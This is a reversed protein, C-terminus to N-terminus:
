RNEQVRLANLALKADTYEAQLEQHDDELQRHTGSKAGPLFLTLGIIITDTLDLGTKVGALKMAIEPLAVVAVPLYPVLWEVRTPLLGWLPRSSKLLRVAALLGGASMTAIEVPTLM